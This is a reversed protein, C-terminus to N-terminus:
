LEEVLYDSKFDNNDWTNQLISTSTGSYSLYGQNNASLIMYSSGSSMKRGALVPENMLQYPSTYRTPRTTIIFGESSLSPIHHKYLKTGGGLGLKTKEEETIELLEGEIVRNYLKDQIKAM